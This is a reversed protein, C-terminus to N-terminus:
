YEKMATLAATDELREKEEQTEQLGKTEHSTSGEAGIPNLHM